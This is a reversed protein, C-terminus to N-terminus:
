RAPPSAFKYGVGRATLLYKPHDADVEIKRRLRRMYVALQNSYGEYDYGWVNNLLQDHSLVRGANRMLTYLLRFEIPTLDIQRGDPMVVVNDVPELRLGAVVVRGAKHPDSFAEARRLLAKVRALLETPEFPKPLYDDGGAELGSVRDGTEGKASLFIVPVNNSERIQKCVELGDIYPMMVDLIVLDPATDRVMRLADFGNAATIVEYGEENLLFAIMKVSPPDDDVVLVRAPMSKECGKEQIQANTKQNPVNYWPQLLACLGEKECNELLCHM